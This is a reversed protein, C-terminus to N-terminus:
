QKNLLNVLVNQVNQLIYLIRFVVGCVECQMKVEVMDETWTKRLSSYRYRPIIFLLCVCLCVCLCV